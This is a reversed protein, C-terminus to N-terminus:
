QALSDARRKHKRAGVSIDEAVNESTCTRMEDEGRYRFGSGIGQGRDVTIGTPNTWWNSLRHGYVPDAWLRSCSCAAIKVPLEPYNMEYVSAQKSSFKLLWGAM